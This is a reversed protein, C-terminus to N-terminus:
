HFQLPDNGADLPRIGPVRWALSEHCTWFLNNKFSTFQGPICPKSGSGAVAGCGAGICVTNHNASTSRSPRTRCM